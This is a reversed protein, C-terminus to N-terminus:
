ANETVLFLYILIYYVYPIIKKQPNNLSAKLISVVRTYQRITLYNRTTAELSQPFGSFGV